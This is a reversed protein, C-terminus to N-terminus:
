RSLLYKGIPNAGSKEVRLTVSLDRLTNNRNATPGLPQSASQNQQGDAPRLLPIAQRIATPKFRVRGTMTVYRTEDKGERYRVEPM